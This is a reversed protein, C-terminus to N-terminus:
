GLPFMPIKSAGKSLRSEEDILEELDDKMKLKVGM